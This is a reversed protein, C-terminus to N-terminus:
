KGTAATACTKDADNANYPRHPAKKLEVIQLDRVVFQHLGSKTNLARCEQRLQWDVQLETQTYDRRMYTNNPLTDPRKRRFSMLLKERSEESDLKVKLIRPLKLGNRGLIAKGVKDMKAKGHRFTTILHTNSDISADLLIKEILIADANETNEDTDMEPVGVLVCNKAKEALQMHEKHNALKIYRNRLEIPTSAPLAVKQAYTHPKRNVVPKFKAGGGGDDEAGGDEVGDIGDYLEDQEGMLVALKASLVQLELKIKKNETIIPILMKAFTENQQTLIENLKALDIMKQPITTWFHVTPIFAIAYLGFTSQQSLVIACVRSL